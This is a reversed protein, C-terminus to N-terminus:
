TSYLIPFTKNGSVVQLLPLYIKVDMEHCHEVSPVPDPIQVLAVLLKVLALKPEALLSLITYVDPEGLM